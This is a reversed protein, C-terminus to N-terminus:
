PICSTCSSARAVPVIICQRDEFAGVVEEEQQEVVEVELRLGVEDAEEQVMHLAEDVQEEDVM